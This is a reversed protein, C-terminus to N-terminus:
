ENKFNKFNNRRKSKLPDSEVHIKSGHIVYEKSHKLQGFTVLEVAKVSADISIRCSSTTSPLHADRLM